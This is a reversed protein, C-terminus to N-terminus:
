FGIRVGLRIEREGWASTIEGLGSGSADTRPNDFKPTNTTNTADARFQLNVRETVQFRRSLSLDWDAHRTRAAPQFRRHRLARHDGPCVRNPRLVATGTGVGGLIQVSPKIQDARQSNGPANLSSSSGSVGFPAGSIVSLVGSIQWGGALTSLFGPSALWRQGKGFPLETVNTIELNHTRDLGSVGRNLGYYEPISISCGHRRQQGRRLHHDIQELHVLRGAHLLQLLPAALADPAFRLAHRRHAHRARTRLAASSRLSSSAPM